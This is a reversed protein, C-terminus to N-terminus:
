KAEKKAAKAEKIAAILKAVDKEHFQYREGKAGKGIGRLLARLSKPKMKLRAALEKTTFVKEDAM